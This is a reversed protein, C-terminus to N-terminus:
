SPPSGRTLLPPSRPVELSWPQTGTSGPSPQDREPHRRPRRRQPDFAPSQGEPRPAGRNDDLFDLGAVSTTPPYHRGPLPRWGEARRLDTIENLWAMKEVDSMVSLNRAPDIERLGLDYVRDYDGNKLHDMKTRATGLAADDTQSKREGFWVILDRETWDLTVNLLDFISRMSPEPRLNAMLTKSSYVGVESGDFHAHLLLMSRRYPRGTLSEITRRTAAAFDTARIFPEMAVDAARAPPPGLTAIDAAAVLKDLRSPQSAPKSSDSAPDRRPKAPEGGAGGPEPLSDHGSDSERDPSICVRGTPQFTGM